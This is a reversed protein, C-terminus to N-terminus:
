EEKSFESKINEIASTVSAVLKASEKLINFQKKPLDVEFALKGVKEDDSELTVIVKM